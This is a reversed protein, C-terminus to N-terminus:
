ATIRMGISLMEESRMVGGATWSALWRSGITPITIAKRRCADEGRRLQPFYPTLIPSQPSDNRRSSVIRRVASGVRILPASRVGCVVGLRVHSGVVIHMLHSGLTCSGEANDSWILSLSWSRYAEALFNNDDLFFRNYCPSFYRSTDRTSEVSRRRSLRSRPELLDVHYVICFCVASLQAGTACGEDGNDM